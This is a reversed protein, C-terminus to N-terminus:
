DHIQFFDFSNPKNNQTVNGEFKIGRLVSPLVASGLAANYMTLDQAYVENTPSLALSMILMTASAMVPAASSSKPAANSTTAELVFDLLTFDMAALPTSTSAHEMSAANASSVRCNEGVGTAQDARVTLLDALFAKKSLLPVDEIPNGIVTAICFSFMLFIPTILRM